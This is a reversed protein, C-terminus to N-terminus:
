GHAVKCNAHFVQRLLVAEAHPPLVIGQAVLDRVGESGGKAAEFDYHVAVPSIRWEGNAM